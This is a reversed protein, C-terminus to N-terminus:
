TKLEALRKPIQDLKSIKMVFSDVMSRPLLGVVYVKWLGGGVYFFPKPNRTVINVVDKAYEDPDQPNSNETNEKLSQLGDEVIKYMSDDKIGRNDTIGTRVTATKTTIVKVGFPALELRLTDAYSHLAAKSSAYVSSFPMPVEGAVSGTNVIKGKAAILLPTFTGVMRMVGFVNVNYCYIADEIELEAGPIKCPVGANNFLYDLKGGELHKEVYEKFADISDQDTVDLSHVHAGLLKLDQMSDVRRAGAFVLYGRSVLVRVLAKGIGSSAGTVIATPMRPKDILQGLVLWNSWYKYHLTFGM